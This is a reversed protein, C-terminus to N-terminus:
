DNPLYLNFTCHSEMIYVNSRSFRFVSFVLHLCPHPADLIRKRQQHSHLITCGSQLLTKYNRVVDFMCRIHPWPLRSEPILSLSFSARMCVFAQVQVRVNVAANKKIAEYQFDLCSDITLPCVFQATLLLPECVIGM